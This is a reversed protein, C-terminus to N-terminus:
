KFYGSMRKTYDLYMRLTEPNGITFVKEKEVEYIKVKLGNKILKNYVPCNYFEGNPERENSGVKEAAANVFDRGYRFWYIGVTAHNSIVIKEACETVYDGEIKAFSHFPEVSPYTLIMGDSDSKMATGYFENINFEIIQDCNSILLEDDNNIYKTAALVSCLAGETEHDLRIIISEPEKLRQSIGWQKDMAMNIIFIFRHNQIPRICDIIAEIMSKGNVDILPKPEKHSYKFRSGLGAM